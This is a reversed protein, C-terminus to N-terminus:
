AKEFRKLTFFSYDISPTKGAALEGLIRGIAPAVKFGSGSGCGGILVSKSGPAYDIVYHHDESVAYKCKDVHTPQTSDLVPVHKKIFNSPDDIYKKVSEPYDIVPLGFFEFTSDEDNSAIFVPFKGSELLPADEARAAKWYCVALSQPQITLPLTPFHKQIWVGVTFVVKKAKYETKSSKVTVSGDSHEHYDLLEESDRIIGGHAVFEKQFAQLWKNALLMGGMPDILGSWENDYKFQPYRQAIM